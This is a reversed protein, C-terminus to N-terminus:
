GHDRAASGLLHLPLIKGTRGALPEAVLVHIADAQTWSGAAYAGGWGRRLEDLFCRRVTEPSAQVRPSVHLLIQTSGM